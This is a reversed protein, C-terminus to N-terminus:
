CAAAAEGERHLAGGGEDETGEDAVYRANAQPRGFLAIGREQRRALTLHQAGDRATERRLLDREVQPYGFRAHVRV